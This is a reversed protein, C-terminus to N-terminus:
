DSAVHALEKFAVAIHTADLGADVLQEGRSAHAIFRDPIGMLRVNGTSLGRAAALELVASGFGGIMAHDEVMIVPRGSAIRDCILGADLPKAFRANVVEVELGDERALISAANLGQECMVGYCLLTGDDGERVVRARGAEFPPCDGPFDEPVEDRPYRIAAPGDLTLAL